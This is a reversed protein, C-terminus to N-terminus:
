GCERVAGIFAEVTERPSFDLDYAPCVLLGRRGLSEIRAEVEKRIQDPGGCDWAWATGITGWLGLRSGFQQRIDAADM